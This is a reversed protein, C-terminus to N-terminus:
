KFIVMITFLTAKLQAVQNKNKKHSKMTRTVTNVLVCLPQLSLWFCLHDPSLGITKLMMFYFFIVFKFM